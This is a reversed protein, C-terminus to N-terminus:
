TLFEIFTRFFTDYDESHARINMKLSKNEDSTNTSNMHFDVTAAFKEKLSLYVCCFNSYYSDLLKYEDNKFLNVITPTAMGVSSTTIDFEGNIIKEISRKTRDNTLLSDES